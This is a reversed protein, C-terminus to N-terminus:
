TGRLVKSITCRTTEYNKRTRFGISEYWSIPFNTLTYINTEIESIKYKNEAKICLKRLLKTAIKKRRNQPHVLLVKSVLIEKNFDQLIYSLAVGVIRENEIAVFCLDKCFRYMNLVYKEAYKIDWRRLKEESKYSNVLLTSVELIDKKKMLRIRLNFM